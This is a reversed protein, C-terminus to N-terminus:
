IKASFNKDARFGVREGLRFCLCPIGAGVTGFCFCAVVMPVEQRERRAFDAVPEGKKPPVFILFIIRTTPLPRCVQWGKAVM